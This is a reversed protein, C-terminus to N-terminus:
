SLKKNRLDIVTDRLKNNAFVALHSKARSMGVYVISRAEETAVAEIDCLIVVVAEMGKFAHVTSFAVQKPLLKISQSETVDVLDFSGSSDAGLAGSSSLRRTSLVVIDNYKLGAKLLNGIEAKVKDAQDEARSYFGFSVEPGEANQPNSPARSFGSLKATDNAINKSNRCNISLLGVSPRGVTEVEIAEIASELNLNGYIAQNEFDGFFTWRGKILGNKTIANLLSVYTPSLIDQAEDVITHDFQIGLELVAKLALKPYIDRFLKQNNDAAAEEEGRFEKAFSSALIWERMASHITGVKCGKNLLVTTQHDKALKNGLLKNYCFFGVTRDNAVNRKFLESALTTKGTGAAGKILQGRNLDAADLHSYQEHTAQLIETESLSIRTGLAIFPDFTPRLLDRVQKADEHNFRAPAKVRESLKRICEILGPSKMKASDIIQVDSLDPLSMLPTVSQPFVVATDFVVGSKKYSGIKADLYDILAHTSAKLQRVPDISHYQGAKVTYLEGNKAEIKGGKVELLFIGRNPIIVLFDIERVNVDAAYVPPGQRAIINQSHIVIWDATAAPNDRIVNFVAKEGDSVSDCYNPIITAM